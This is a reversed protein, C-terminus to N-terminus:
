QLRLGQPEPFLAASTGFQPIEAVCNWGIAKSREAIRQFV